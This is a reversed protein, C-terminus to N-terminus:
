RAVSVITVSRKLYLVQKMWAVAEARNNDVFALGYLSHATAYDSLTDNMLNVMNGLKGLVDAKGSPILSKAGCYAPCADNEM